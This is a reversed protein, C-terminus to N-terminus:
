SSRGGSSQTVINTSGRFQRSLERNIFTILENKDRAILGNVTVNIVPGGGAGAPVTGHPYVAAGSPLSVVEAGRENIGVLGGQMLLGGSALLPIKPISFGISGFPTNVHINDIGGIVNNVLGILFNIAGKVDNGIGTWIGHVLTGLGSFIDGVKSVGDHAKTGLWSFFDGAKNRMGDWANHATTGLDSFKQGIGTMVNHATTGLNSFFGGIGHLIDQVKSGLDSFKQGIGHLINQVTTGLGSFFNGIGHLINQVNKGLNSFLSGMPRVVDDQFFRVIHGWIMIFFQEVQKWHQILLIIGMILVGIALVLLLIPGVAILTGVAATWAAAAWAVFAPILLGLIVGAGAILIGILLDMAWQNKQFFGVVASIGNALGTFVGVLLNLANKLLGSKTLWGIFSTIIPGVNTAIQSLIPLLQLGLDILDNQINTGLKQMQFSFTQQTRAWAEQKEKALTHADGLKKINTTLLTAHTGLISLATAAQKSGLISVMQGKNNELAKNLYAVQQQYSLTKFYPEDFAIGLKHMRKAILDTKGDMVNLLQTLGTMSTGFTKMGGTSLTALTADMDTVSVGYHAVLAAGTQLAGALDSMNGRGLALTKFMQNSVNDVQSAKLSFANLTVVLGTTVQTQDANAIIASRTATALIRTADAGAFNASIIQYMGKALDTQAVGTQDSLSRITTTYQRMQADSSGTTNQLQTMASQYDMAAKVAKDGIWTAAAVGAVVALTGIKLLSSALQTSGQNIADMGITGETSLNRLGFKLNGLANALNGFVGSYQNKAQLLIRFAIDTSAMSAM